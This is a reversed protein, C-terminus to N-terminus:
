SAMISNPIWDRFHYESIVKISNFKKFQEFNTYISYIQHSTIRYTLYKNSLLVKRERYRQLRVSSIQFNFIYRNLVKVGCFLKLKLILSAALFQIVQLYSSWVKISFFFFVYRMYRLTWPAESMRGFM